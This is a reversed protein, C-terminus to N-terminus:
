LKFTFKTQVKKRELFFKRYEYAKSMNSFRIIQEEGNSFKFVIYPMEKIEGDYYLLNKEQLFKEFEKDESPHPYKKELAFPFGFSDYTYGPETIYKLKRFSFRRVPERVIYTSKSPPIVPSVSVLHELYYVKNMNEKTKM